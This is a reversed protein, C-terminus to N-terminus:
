AAANSLGVTYARSVGLSAKCSNSNTQPEYTSFLLKGDAVLPRSLVKEGEATMRIYWGGNTSSFHQEAAEREQSTGTQVLNATADYLDGETFTGESTTGKVLKDTRFSYFRDQINRDLPHGRYGSGINVTLVKTTGVTLLALEAEHYFRRANTTGTGGIDAFVGDGNSGAPS